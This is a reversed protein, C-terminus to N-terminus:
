SNEKLVLRTRSICLRYRAALISALIAHMARTHIRAHARTNPHTVEDDDDEENDNDDEPMEEVGDDFYKGAKSLEHEEMDEEDGDDHVM